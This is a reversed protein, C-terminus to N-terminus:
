GILISYQGSFYKGVNIIEVGDKKILEGNFDEYDDTGYWPEICVYAAGPKSWLGLYTFGPFQVRVSKESTNSRLTVAESKLGQYITADIEFMSKTINLISTNVLSPHKIRGLGKGNFQQYPCTEIEDFEIYYDTISDGQTWNLAFAPHAGLSFPMITSSNNAVKYTVILEKGDLTFSIDLDFKFPYCELTEPSDSLRYTLNIDSQNILKFESTKAFGHKSISYKKGEFQYRGNNIKGIFPFLNPAQGKWIAPDGQWLYEDDNVTQLSSIEAGLSNVSICIHQNKITTIM